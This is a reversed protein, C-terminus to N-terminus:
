ATRWVPAVERHYRRGLVRSLVLVVPAPVVTRLYRREAPDMGDTLWAFFRGATTPPVQRLQKEVRKWEASEFHPTILPELEDEEHRLHREVVRSADEVGARATAADGAAGTAAYAEMLRAAETLAGSMAQHEVDMAGILSPQVGMRSVAPFILRDEQEHHHTLEAHLNAYARQLARARETDGDAVSGLARQLRDLDRRVAAHIVRNMTMEAMDPGYGAGRSRGM